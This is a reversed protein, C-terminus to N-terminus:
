LLPFALWIPGVSLALISISVSRGTRPSAPYLL